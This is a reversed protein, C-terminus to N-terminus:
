GPLEAGMLGRGLLGLFFGCVFAGANFVIYTALLGRGPFDPQLALILMACSFVFFSAGLIMKRTLIPTTVRRFRTKADFLGSAFSFLVVLPTFFSMTILTDFLYTDLRGHVFLGAVSLALTSFSFAESFHDIVPHIDLTLIRRRKESVPDTYALMNKAPVGCAPCVNGVQSRSTIFGCAKCRVLEAM